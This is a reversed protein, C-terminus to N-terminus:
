PVQTDAELGYLGWLSGEDGGSFFGTYLPGGTHKPDMDGWKMLYKM